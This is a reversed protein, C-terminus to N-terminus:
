SGRAVVEEERDVRHHLRRGAPLVEDLDGFPVRPVVDLLASPNSFVPRFQDSVARSDEGVTVGTGEGRHVVPGRRSWHSHGILVISTSRADPAFIGISSRDGCSTSWRSPCTMAGFSLGARLGAKSTVGALYMVPIM